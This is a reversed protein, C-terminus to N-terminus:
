PPLTRTKLAAGDGRIERNGPYPQRGAFRGPVFHVGCASRGLAVFYYIFGM